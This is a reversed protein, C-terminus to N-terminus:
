HKEVAINKKGSTKCLECAKCDGLCKYADNESHKDVVYFNNDLMFGSGNLTINESHKFSLDKRATYGYVKIGHDKLLEAIFYIKDLDVQDIFDGAESVRLYKLKDRKGKNIGIIENAISEATQSHFDISQQDRFPKVQPYIREAKMAYCYKCHKCLGLKKSPCDTASTINLIITDKGLKKNGISYRM